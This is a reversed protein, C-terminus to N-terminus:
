YLSVSTHFQFYLGGSWELYLKHSHTLRVFLYTCLCYLFLVIFFNCLTYSKLCPCIVIDNEAKWIWKSSLSDTGYSFISWLVALVLCLQPELLLEDVDERKHDTFLECTLLGEMLAGEWQNDKMKTTSVPKWQHRGTSQRQRYHLICDRRSRNWSCLYHNWYWIPKTCQIQRRIVLVANSHENIISTTSLQLPWPDVQEGSSYFRCCQLIQIHSM